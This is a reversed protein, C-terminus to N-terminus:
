PVFLLTRFMEFNSHRNLYLFKLRDATELIMMRNGVIATGAVYPYQAFGHINGTVVDLYQMLQTTNITFYIRDKNDYATMTGTNYLPGQASGNAMQLVGNGVIDFRDFGQVGGGRISFLYRGRMEARSPTAAFDLSAGAGRVSNGLIVYSTSAAVPLTTVATFTIISATNSLVTPETTEGAGGVIKVRRGALANVVWGSTITISGTATSSASLNYTGTGGAGTGFSTIISGATIGTGTVALGVQLAPTGAATITMVNGTVSGTYTLIKDTDALTTTSQGAGTAIGHGISGLANRTCIVYVSQGTLPTTTATKLTLTNATNSAIEMALQPLAAATSFSSTAFRCIKGAHENVTWNKTTDKLTTTSQGSVITWATASGTYTFTTAGTVTIVAAVNNAGAGAGTDGSMTVTWGTKFGHPQNTTVTITTTGTATSIAIPPFDAYRCAAQCAVGDDHKNGFFNIGTHMSYRGIATNGANLIYAISNDPGIMYVSTADPAVGAATYWSPATWAKVLTLVTATNSAIIAWQGKGTGSVIYVAMNAWQNVTWAQATDTLTLAAGATAIGADYGEIMYRSTTTPATGVTVWTLQTQTNASIKRLQGEGTGSSIFVWRGVWENTVWNALSDTLTTTTGATAFSEAQVTDTEPTSEIRTETANASLNFTANARFYWCDEGINYVMATNAIGSMWLIAGTMVKYRSTADPTTAWASDVTCVSSEISYITQSGATASHATNILGCYSFNNYQTTDSNQWVLTTADNYLIRRVQGVGSGFSVRISYGTWQNITWAKTSDTLSMITGTATATAVGTDAVVPEAQTTISRRQGKGTGGTIRVGYAEFCRPAFAALELTTGTASIVRGESGQDGMFEMDACTSTAVPPTLQQWGDTWSDYRYFVLSATSWYTYRGHMEHYNCSHSVACATLATSVVPLQRTWEWTPLDVQRILTNATLKPTPM